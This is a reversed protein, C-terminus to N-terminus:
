RKERMLVSLRWFQYLAVVLTPHHVGYGHLDSHVSWTKLWAIRRITM